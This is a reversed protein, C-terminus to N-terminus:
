VTWLVEVPDAGDEDPWPFFVIPTREEIPTNDDSRTSGAVVMFGVIEGKLPNYRAMPGWRGEDFLWGEGVLTAPSGEPKLDGSIQNPRLREAGTAYWQGKISLFIWLTATQAPNGSDDIAVAPWAHRPDIITLLGNRHIGLRKWVATAPFKLIRESSGIVTVTELAFQPPADPKTDPPDVPPHDPPTDPPIPALADPLRVDVTLWNTFPGEGEPSRLEVRMITM